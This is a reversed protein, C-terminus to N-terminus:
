DATPGTTNLVRQIEEASMGKAIMERKLDAEVQTQKAKRWQVSIFYAAISVCIASVAIGGAISEGDALLIPLSM